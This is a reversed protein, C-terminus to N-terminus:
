RHYESSWSQLGVKRTDKSNTELQHHLWGSSRCWKISWFVGLMGCPMKERSKKGDECRRAGDLIEGEREFGGSGFGWIWSWWWAEGTGGTLRAGGDSRAGWTWKRWVSRAVAVPRPVQPTSCGRWNWVWAVEGEGRQEHTKIRQPSPILPFVLVSSCLAPQDPRRISWASSSRWSPTSWRHRRARGPPLRAAVRSPRLRSNSCPAQPM